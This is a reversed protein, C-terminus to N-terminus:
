NWSVEIEYNDAGGKDDEVEIRATYNNRSNPSEILRVKGRGDRKRVNVRLDTKPMSSSMNYTEGSTPAGELTRTWSRHGRIYIEVRNDVRGRWTLTGPGGQGGGGGPHEYGGGFGGGGWGPQQRFDVVRLSQDVQCSGRRPDRGEINWDVTKTRLGGTVNTEVDRRNVNLRRSVEQRCARQFDYDSRGGGFNGGNNGGSGGRNCDFPPATTITDYRGQVTVVNICVRSRDNWWNQFTRDGGKETKVFTYGRSRLEGEGGAARAGILDSVDRPAPEQAAVPIAMLLGLVFRGFMRKRIM